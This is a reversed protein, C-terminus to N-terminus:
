QNRLCQRYLALHAGLRTPHVSLMPVRALTLCLDPCSSTCPSDRRHTPRPRTTNRSFLDAYDGHFPIICHVTCYANWADAEQLGINMGKEDDWHGGFGSLGKLTTVINYASRLQLPNTLSIFFRWQVAVCRHTSLNAHVLPRRLVQQIICLWTQSWHMGFSLSSPPEM